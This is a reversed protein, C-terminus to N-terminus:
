SFSINEPHYKSYLSWSDEYDRLDFKCLSEEEINFTALRMQLQGSNSLYYLHTDLTKYKPYYQRLRIRKTCFTKRKMKFIKKVPKM